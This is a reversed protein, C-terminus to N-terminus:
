LFILVQEEADSKVLAMWASHTEHIVSMTFAKDMFREGLAFTNAPKGDPIKYSHNAGIFLDYMFLYVFYKLRCLVDLSLSYTIFSDVCWM